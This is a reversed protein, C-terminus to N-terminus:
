MQVDGPTLFVGGITAITALSAIKETEGGRAQIGVAGASMGPSPRDIRHERDGARDPAGLRLIALNQEFDLPALHEAEVGDPRFDEFENTGATLLVLNGTLYASRVACVDVDHSDIDAFKQFHQPPVADKLRGLAGCTSLLFGVM